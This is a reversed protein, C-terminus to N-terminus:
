NSAPAAGEDGSDLADLQQYLQANGDYSQLDRVVASVQGSQAQQHSLFAFGGGGVVLVAGLTGAAVHRLPLDVRYLVWAKLKELRTPPPSTQEVRLRAYLRAEFFASAEPTKWEELLRSTADLAALESACRPCEAFHQRVEDPVSHPELFIAAVNKRM